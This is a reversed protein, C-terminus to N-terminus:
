AKPREEHEQVEKSVTLDVECELNRLAVETFVLHRIRDRDFSAPLRLNARSGDVSVDLGYEAIGEAALVDVIAEFVVAQRALKAFFRRKRRRLFAVFLGLALVVPVIAMLAMTLRVGV